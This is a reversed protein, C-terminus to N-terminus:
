RIVPRDFIHLVSDQKHDLINSCTIVLGHNNLQEIAHNASRTGRFIPRGALIQCKRAITLHFRDFRSALFLDFVRSGGVVAIRGGEPVLLKLAELIPTHSVNIIWTKEDKQVLGDVRESLVLRVRKSSLTAEHSLRGLITLASKDLQRQFYVWDADIKLCPPMIGDSGTISGEASIIAYGEIVYAPMSNASPGIPRYPMPQNSM